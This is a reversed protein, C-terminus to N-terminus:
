FIFNFYVMINLSDNVAYECIENLATENVAIDWSNIVFLNTYDKVKDILLKAESTTNLGFSIGFFFDQNSAANKIEYHVYIIPLCIASVLLAILLILWIPKM